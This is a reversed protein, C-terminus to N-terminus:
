QPKSTTQIKLAPRGQIPPELGPPLQPDPRAFAIRTASSAKASTFAEAAVPTDLQWNALEM